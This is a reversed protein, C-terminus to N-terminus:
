EEIRDLEELLDAIPKVREPNKAISEMRHDILETQWEPLSIDSEIGPYKKKIMEWESISVQVATIQGKKNSLYQVSM